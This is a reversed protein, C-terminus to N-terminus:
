EKFISITAVIEKNYIEYNIEVKIIKRLGFAIPKLYSNEVQLLIAGILFDTMDTNIVSPLRSDFYRLIPAFTFATNL